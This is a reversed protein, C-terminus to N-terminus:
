KGVMEEGFIKSCSSLCTVIGAPPTRGLIWGSNNPFLFLPAFFRCGTGSMGGGGGGLALFALADPAFALADFAHTAFWETTALFCVLFFANIRALLVLSM